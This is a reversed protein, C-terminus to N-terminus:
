KLVTQLGFHLIFLNRRLQRTFLPRIAFYILIYFVHTKLPIRMLRYFYGYHTVFLDEIGHGKKQLLM